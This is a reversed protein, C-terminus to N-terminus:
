KEEFVQATFIYIETAPDELCDAPLGAKDQCLRNLFEEKSWGTETAVQPLFVGSRGDKQVKVGHKGLEIEAVNKIKRMPSLVSVEYELEPLEEVTVPSFRPDDLAAASAMQPITKFLPEQSEILGICGRLQGNEKLTVFVGSKQQLLKEKNEWGSFDPLKGNKVFAETSARAMNLLVNEKTEKEFFGIACYGVVRLRDGTVDGSNLYKLLQINNANIIGAITMGLEVAPAACMFTAVNLINKQELERIKDEFQATEGTLLSDIVERDYKNADQYNPYHSMDSSIVFVTNEDINKALRSAYDKKEEESLDSVLIPVIKFDHAIAKQLFPVQVELSHEPAFPGSDVPIKLKAILEQDLNVKGLPTEWSDSGDAVLRSVPYNHSTGLIIVTRINKGVLLKFGYAAVEGSYEYGAHPVLIVKPIRINKENNIRVDELYNDIKQSLESKEAPYFTGAVASQRIKDKSVSIKKSMNINQNVFTNGKLRSKLLLYYGFLIVVFFILIILITGLHKM